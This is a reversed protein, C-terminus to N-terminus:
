IRLVRQTIYLASADGCIQPITKYSNSYFNSIYLRSSTICLWHPLSYKGPVFKHYGTDLDEHDGVYEEEVDIEADEFFTNSQDNNTLKTHSKKALDRGSSHHNLSHHTNAYVARGGCLLLLCMFVSFVFGKM